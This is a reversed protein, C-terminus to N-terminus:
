KQEKVTRLITNHLEEFTTNRYTAIPTCSENILCDTVLVTKLGAVTAAACDEDTNNGVMLCEEPKKGIVELIETYYKPNPKCFHMNEYTTVLTFDDCTLGIWSLRTEIGAKPFLPNTALVVTYGDKKLAEILPKALPNEGTCSKVARFENTYFSDTIAMHEPKFVDANLAAFTEWFCDMNPRTGDNKVMAATGGWVTKILHQPEYGLQALKGALGKFYGKTFVENDMPLLTGDLDFLITNIM